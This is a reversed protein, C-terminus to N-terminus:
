ISPNSTAACIPMLLATLTKSMSLPNPVYVAKLPREHRPFDPPSAVNDSACCYAYQSNFSVLDFRIPRPSFVRSISLTVPLHPAPLLSGPTPPSPSPATKPHPTPTHPRSIHPLSLYQTPTPSHLVLLGYLPQLSPFPLLQPCHPPPACRHRSCSPRPSPTAVMPRCAFRAHDRLLTATLPNSPFNYIQLEQACPIASPYSTDASLVLHRFFLLKAPLAGASSTPSHFTHVRPCAVRYWLLPVAPTPFLHLPLPGASGPPLGLADPSSLPAVLYAAFSVLGYTICLFLNHNDSTSM